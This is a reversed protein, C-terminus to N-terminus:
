NEEQEYKPEKPFFQANAIGDGSRLTGLIIAPIPLIKARYRRYFSYMGMMGMVGISLVLAMSTHLHPSYEPGMPVLDADCPMAVSFHNDFIQTPQIQMKRMYLNVEYVDDDNTLTVRTPESCSYSMGVPTEFLRGVFRAQKLTRDKSHAVNPFEKTSNMGYTFVVEHVYWLDGTAQPLTRFSINLTYYGDDWQFFIFPSETQNMCRGGVRNMLSPSSPMDGKKLEIYDRNTAPNRAFYEIDFTM